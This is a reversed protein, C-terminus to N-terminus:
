VVVWRDGLSMVHMCHKTLMCLKSSGYAISVDGEELCKIALIHGKPAREPLVVSVYESTDTIVLERTYAPVHITFQQSKQAYMPSVRQLPQPRMVGYVSAM